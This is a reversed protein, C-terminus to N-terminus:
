CAPRHMRLTYAMEQVFMRKLQSIFLGNFTTESGSKYEKIMLRDSPDTKHSIQIVKARFVKHFYLGVIM